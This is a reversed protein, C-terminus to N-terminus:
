HFHIVALRSCFTNGFVLDVDVALYFEGDYEVDVDAIVHDPLINRHLLSPQKISVTHIVAFVICSMLQLYLFLM